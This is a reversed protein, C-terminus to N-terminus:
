WEDLLSEQHDKYRKLLYSTESEFILCRDEPDIWEFRGLDLAIITGNVRHFNDLKSDTQCVGYELTARYVEELKEKLKRVDLKLNRDNLPVGGVDSIILAPVGNLEIEGYYVPLYLGQLSQMAQYMAKENNFEEEAGKKQTKIILRYPSSYHGLLYPETLQSQRSTLNNVFKSWSDQHLEVRFVHQYIAHIPKATAHLTHGRFEFTINTPETEAM